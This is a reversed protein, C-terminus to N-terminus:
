NYYFTFQVKRRDGEVLRRLERPWPAYPAPDLVAMECLLSLDLGVTSEVVQLDTVRGDPHLHFRLVVKGRQYGAYRKAELLAYWRDAVARVFAADYDGFPTAKVDLSEFELRTKMGGDQKMPEGPLADTSSHRARAEALTRPRSRTPPNEAVRNGTEFSPTARMLALDSPPQPTATPRLAVAEPPPEVPMPQAVSPRLPEYADRDSRAPTGEETKPVLEQVGTLRPQGRDQDAERNAARANRDSYFPTDPPPELSEQRPAVEVFVLPVEPRSLMEEKAALAQELQHAHRLRRPLLWDSPLDLYQVLRHFGYALLHIAVSLGFALLLRASDRVNWRVSWLKTTEARDM